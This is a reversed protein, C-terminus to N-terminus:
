QVEWLISNISVISEEWKKTSIKEINIEDKFM